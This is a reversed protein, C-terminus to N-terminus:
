GGARLLKKELARRVGPLVQPDGDLELRVQGVRLSGIQYDEVQELRMHWGPGELTDGDGPQAGLEQVYERILWLPIGTVVTVFAARESM